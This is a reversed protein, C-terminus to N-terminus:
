IIWPELMKGAKFCIGCCYQRVFSCSGDNEYWSNSDWQMVLKWSLFAAKM